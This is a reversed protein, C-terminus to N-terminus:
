TGHNWVIWSTGSLSHESYSLLTFGVVNKKIRFKIQLFKESTKLQNVKTVINSRQLKMSLSLDMM